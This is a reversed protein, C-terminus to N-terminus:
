SLDQLRFWQDVVKAHGDCYFRYFLALAASPLRNQSKKVDADFMNDRFTKSQFQQLSVRQRIFMKLILATKATYARQSSESYKCTKKNKVYEAKGLWEHFRKLITKMSSTPVTPVKIRRLPKMKKLLSLMEDYRSTVVKTPVYQKMKEEFASVNLDFSQKLVLESWCSMNNAILEVDESAIVLSRFWESM